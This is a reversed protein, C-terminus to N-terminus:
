DEQHSHNISIVRNDDTHTHTTEDIETLKQKEVSANCANDIKNLLILLKDVIKFEEKIDKSKLLDELPMLNKQGNMFWYNMEMM